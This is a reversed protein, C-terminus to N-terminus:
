TMAFHAEIWGDMRAVTMGLLTTQLVLDVVGLEVKEVRSVRVM